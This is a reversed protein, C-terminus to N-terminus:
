LFYDVRDQAVLHAEFINSLVFFIGNNKLGM